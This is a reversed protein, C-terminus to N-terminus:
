DAPLSRCATKTEPATVMPELIARPFVGGSEKAHQLALTEQAERTHAVHERTRDGGARALDIWWMRLPQGCDVEFAAENVELWQLNEIPAGPTKFSLRVSVRDGRQTVSYVENWTTKPFGQDVTALDAFLRTQAVPKSGYSRVASTVRVFRALSDDLDACPTAKCRQVAAIADDLSHNSITAWPWRNAKDVKQAGSVLDVEIRGMSGHAVVKDDYYAIVACDKADCVQFQANITGSPIVPHEGTVSKSIVEALSESTDLHYQSWQSRQLVRARAPASPYPRDRLVTSQIILGRENVGSMPFGAGFMTQALSWYRSTWEIANATGAELAGNRHLHRPNLVVAARAPSYWGTSIAYQAGDRPSKRAIHFGTSASASVSM